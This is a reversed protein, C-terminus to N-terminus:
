RRRELRRIAVRRALDRFLYKRDMRDGRTRVKGTRAWYHLTEAPVGLAVAARRDLWSSAPGPERESAGPCRDLHGRLDAPTTATGCGPCRVPQEVLREQAMAQKQALPMLHYPSARQFRAM